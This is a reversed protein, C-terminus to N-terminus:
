TLPPSSAADEGAIRGGIFCESLNGGSLYLYGWISGLEGAVYLRPIIEGFPNLVRQRADHVPGGQTNSVVPWVEGVYFPPTRVPTRTAPPRGHPDEGGGDCLANWAALTQELTRTEVHLLQALEGLSHARKLIGLEVEKLNDESWSYPAIDPDNVIARALPYMRRGDEDLLLYAPIGPFRQIAPDFRDLGRHGTDQLYPDYENMFRRGNRDLLIWSMRVEAPRVAPTWDPLRKTRIGFPFDPDPHRFGYSGHLHWMHWLDAGASQAMRIGDGTNGRTAAPLVPHLQWYQRQMAPSAEFGGCALVVGRRAGIRRTRGSSRVQLGAIMGQEDLILREAPTSLRVDIRRARVNDDVLRFVTPGGRLAHAHPYERRADFGPIHEVELFRFTDFGPFPYNAPRERVAIRADNARALYEFYAPLRVMEEAFHRLLPTPTAGGNTAELYALTQAADDAVRMGGGACISVGGPVSMKEVLVVHAGADAAAIAAAGGAFGYGAIIVDCYEDFSM